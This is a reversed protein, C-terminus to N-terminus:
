AGAGQENRATTIADNWADIKAVMSTVPDADDDPLIGRTVHLVVDTTERLVGALDGGQAGLGPVLFPVSPAADRMARVAETRTAGVVLGCNHRM